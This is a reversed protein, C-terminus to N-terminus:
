SLFFFRDKRLYLLTIILVKYIEPFKFVEKKKRYLLLHIAHYIIELNNSQTHTSCTYLVILISSQVDYILRTKSEKKIRLLEWLFFGV